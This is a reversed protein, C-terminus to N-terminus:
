DVSSCYPELNLLSVTTTLLTSLIADNLIKLLAITDAKCTIRLASVIYFTMIEYSRHSMRM